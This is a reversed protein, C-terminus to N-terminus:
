VASPWFSLPKVSIEARCFDSKAASSRGCGVGVLRVLGWKYDAIKFRTRYSDPVQTDYTDFDLLVTQLAAGVFVCAQMLNRKM